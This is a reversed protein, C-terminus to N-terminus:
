VYPDRVQDHLVEFFPRRIKQNDRKEGQQHFSKLINRRTIM